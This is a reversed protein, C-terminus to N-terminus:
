IISIDKKVAISQLRMCQMANVAIPFADLCLVYSTMSAYVAYCLYVPFAFASEKM